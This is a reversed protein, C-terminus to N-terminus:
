AQPPPQPPTEPAPQDTQPPTPGPVPPQRKGSAYDRLLDLKERVERAMRSNPYERIIEEGTSVANSWAQDAVAIAFQVGLNHLKKKFVDRASEALAAGEEPSLYKDLQHLLEISKDVDNIRVAEGYQRLLERKYNNWAAHIMNPLANTKEHGPFTDQLRRAERRAQEWNRRDLVEQLRQIAADIKEEVSARRVNEIEERLRNAEEIMGHSTELRNILAEASKEDQKLMLAHVTERLADLEYEHYILSKAQDSLCALSSLNRLQDGQNSLLSEIRELRNSSTEVAKENAVIVRIVFGAVLSWGAAILVLLVGILMTLVSAFGNERWTLVGNLVAFVLLISLLFLTILLVIRTIRLTWVNPETPQPM